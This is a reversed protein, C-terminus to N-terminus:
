GGHMALFRAGVERLIQRPLVDDDGDLASLAFVIDTHCQMSLCKGQLGIQNHGASVAVAAEMLEDKASSCLTEQAVHHYRDHQHMSVSQGLAPPHRM